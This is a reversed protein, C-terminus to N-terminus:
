IFLGSIKISPCHVVGTQFIRIIKSLGRDVFFSSNKRTLAHLCHAYDSYHWIFKSYYNCMGLFRRIQKKTSPVPFDCIKEFKKPNIKIGEANVLYGLYDTESKGFDCKKLRLKLKAQRLREFVARLKDLHAHWSMGTVLINDIYVYVDDYLLGALVRELLRQFTMGANKCGFPM